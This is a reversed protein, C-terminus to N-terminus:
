TSPPTTFSMVAGTTRGNANTAVLRYFYLTGPSLGTVPLSVTRSVAPVGPVSDVATISGFSTTTGYEFTFTTAGNRPNLTGSLTAGTATVASAAGTIATPATPVTTFSMVAGRATGTANTAVLRYYYTTGPSLGGMPVTVALGATSSGASQPATINGLSTTTGYEITYATAQGHANVTGAISAGTATISSAAGTVASPASSGSTTFAQVAGCVQNAVGAGTVSNNACARYYYTTAAALGSIAQPPQAVATSGSGASLTGSAPVVTGFATTPGYEYKYTTAAGGANITANLQAGTTTVASAADTTVTPAVATSAFTIPSHDNQPQANMAAFLSCPRAASCVQPGGGATFTATVTVNVPGFTGSANTTFTGIPDSCVETAQDVICQVITGSGSTGFGTGSAAVTQGAPALNTSPAVTLTTGPTDASATGAAIVLLAAVVVTTTSAACGRMTRGFGRTM